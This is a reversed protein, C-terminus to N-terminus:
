PRSDVPQDHYGLRRLLVPPSEDQGLWKPLYKFDLKSHAWRFLSDNTVPFKGEFSYYDDFTGQGTGNMLVEIQPWHFVSNVELISTNKCLEINYLSKFANDDFHYIMPKKLLVLIVDIKSIDYKSSLESVKSTLFSDLQQKQMLVHKAEVNILWDKVCKVQITGDMSLFSSTIKATTRISSEYDSHVQKTKYSRILPPAPLLCLDVVKHEMTQLLLINM